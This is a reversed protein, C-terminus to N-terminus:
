KDVGFCSLIVRKEDVSNPNSVLIGYEGPELSRTSLLYSSEGYKKGSFKVMGKTNTTSRMLTGSNDESVVVFRKKKKAKLKYVSVISMPDSNNDTARVVLKIGTNNKPIRISSKGGSIYISLADWSNSSWSMGQKIEGIEKDLPFSTNDSFILIAEGAFDPEQVQANCLNTFTFVAFLLFFYNTRM